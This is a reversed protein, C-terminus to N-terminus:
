GERNEPNPSEDAGTDAAPANNQEDAPTEAAVDTVAPSTTRLRSIPANAVSCPVPSRCAKPCRCRSRTARGAALREELRACLGQRLDPRPRCRHARSGPEAPHTSQRGHPRGDEQEQLGQGSGPASRDFRAFPPLGSVGHSARLGGFGWRKMVGAFGKGVTHGTVDVMQGAIFHEARSRRASPFCAM